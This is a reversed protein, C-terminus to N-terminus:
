GANSAPEIIVVRYAGAKVGTGTAPNAMTMVGDGTNANSAGAGAAAPSGATAAGGTTIKGLVAGRVRNEGSVLTIKRTQPDDSGAFIGDPTFTGQSTFGAALTM